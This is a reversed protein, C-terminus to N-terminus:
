GTPRFEQRTGDRVASVSLHMWPIISEAMGTVRVQIADGQLADIHVVPRTVIQSSRALVGQAQTWGQSLSGGSACAAQEGASASAQVVHEAHAWLAAQVGVFVMLM